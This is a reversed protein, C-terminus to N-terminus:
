KENNVADIISDLLEEDMMGHAKKLSNMVGKANNSHAILLMERVHEELLHGEKVLIILAIVIEYGESYGNIFRDRLHIALANRKESSYLM